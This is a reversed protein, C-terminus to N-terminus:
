LSIKATNEGTKSNEQTKILNPKQKKPLNMEVKLEEEDNFDMANSLQVKQTQPKDDQKKEPVIM